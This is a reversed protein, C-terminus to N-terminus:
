RNQWVFLWQKRKSVESDVISYAHSHRYMILSSTTNPWIEIFDHFRRRGSRPACDILTNADCASPQTISDRGRCILITFVLLSLEVALCEAVPKLTVTGWLHGNFCTTGHWLLHPMRFVFEHLMCAHGKKHMIISELIKNCYLKLTATIRRILGCVFSAGHWLPDLTISGKRRFSVFSILLLRVKAIRWQHQHHIYWFPVIELPVSLLKISGLRLSLVYLLISTFM